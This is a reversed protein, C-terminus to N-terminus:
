IFIMKKVIMIIIINWLVMELLLFVVLLLLLLIAAARWLWTRLPVVPAPKVQPAVGPAAEAGVSAAISAWGDAPAPAEFNQMSDRCENLWQKDLENNTM